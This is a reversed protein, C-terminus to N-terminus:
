GSLFFHIIDSITAALDYVFNGLTFAAQTKVTQRVKRANSVSQIFHNLKDFVQALVSRGHAFQLVDSLICNEFQQLFFAEWDLLKPPLMTAGDGSILPRPKKYINRLQLENFSLSNCRRPPGCTMVRQYETV